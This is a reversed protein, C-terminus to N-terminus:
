PRCLGPHLALMLTSGEQVVCCIIAATCARTDCPASLKQPARTATHAALHRQWLTHMVSVCTTAVVAQDRIIDQKSVHQGSVDASCRSYGRHNFGGTICCRILTDGGADAGTRSSGAPSANPLLHLRLLSGSSDSSDQQEGASGGQFTQVGQLVLNHVSRAQSSSFTVVFQQQQGAPIVCACPRITFLDQASSKLGTSSDSAGAASAEATHTVAHAAKSQQLTQLLSSPGGPPLV